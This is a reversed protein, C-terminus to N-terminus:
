IREFGDRQCLCRGTRGELARRFEQGFKDFAYGSDFKPEPFIGYGLLERWATQRVLLDIRNADNEHADQYQKEVEWQSSPWVKLRQMRDGMSISQARVQQSLNGSIWETPLFIVGAVLAIALPAVLSSYSKFVEKFQSMDM